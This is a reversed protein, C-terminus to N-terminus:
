KGRGQRTNLMGAARLIPLFEAAEDPSVADAPMNSALRRAAFAAVDPAGSERSVRALVRWAKGWRKADPRATAATTVGSLIVYVRDGRDLTGLPTGDPDALLAEPDPLDLARRWELFERSPGAGGGGALLRMEAQATARGAAGAALLRAAM